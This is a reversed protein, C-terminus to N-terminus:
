LAQMVRDAILEYGQRNPHFRDPSLRGPRREFLDFIPVSAARHRLAIKEIAANWDAIVASGLDGSSSSSFPNYLGLVVIPASANLSRMTTLAEDLNKEMQERSRLVEDPLAALSERPVSHSLDNGGISLLIAGAASVLARAHPHALVEKLGVTELGDVALNELRLGPHSKKLKEAVDAAYGPGEGAGRTLSDGLGLLLFVGPRMTEVAAAPAAAPPMGRAPRLAERFGWLLIAGPLISVFLPVRRWFMRM